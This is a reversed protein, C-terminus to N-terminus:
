SIPRVTLQAGLAANGAGATATGDDPPDHLSQRHQAPQHHDCQRQLGGQQALLCRVNHLVRGCLRGRHPDGGLRWVGPNLCFVRKANQSSTTQGTGSFQMEPNLCKRQVFPLM